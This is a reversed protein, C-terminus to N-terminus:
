KKEAEKLLKQWMETARALLGGNGTERPAPKGKPNDKDVPAPTGDDPKAHSLKPIYKRELMGWGSSIIFYLSLGSAVWYFAYGMVIMMYNMMKMQMAQQEDMAPPMMLKQQFFMLTVALIPLLHFYPGFNLFRALGGIVPWNQWNVLMDPQALNDMWLFGELRLNTSENLAYYLGMFVPMQLFVVFCGTCGSFPSVGHKRFVEMQALGRAQPENKFKEQV